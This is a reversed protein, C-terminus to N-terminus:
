RDPDADPGREDEAPIWALLAEAEALRRQWRPFPTSERNQGHERDSFPSSDYAMPHGEGRGIAAADDPPREGPGRQAFRGVVQRAVGWRGEGPRSRPAYWGGM